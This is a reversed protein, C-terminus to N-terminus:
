IGLKASTKSIAGILPDREALGGLVLYAQENIIMFRQEIRDGAIPEAVVRLLSVANIAMKPLTMPMPITPYLLFVVKNSTGGTTVLYVLDSQVGDVATPLSQVPVVVEIIDTEVNTFPPAGDGGGAYIRRDPGFSDAISPRIDWTIDGLQIDALAFNPGYDLYPRGNYQSQLAGFGQGYIFIHDNVFGYKKYVFWVHPVPTLDNVDGEYVYEVGDHKLTIEVGLNAYVYEEAGFYPTYEVGVNEYISEISGHYEQGTQVGVNEYSYGWAKGVNLDVQFSWISSWPGWTTTGAPAIRARWYYWTDVVLGTPQITVQGNVVSALAGPWIIATFAADTAVQIQLDSTGGLNNSVLMQLPVGLSPNHNGTSPQVLVVAFQATAAAASWQFGGFSQNGAGDKFAM